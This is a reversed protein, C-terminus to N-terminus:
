EKTIFGKRRYWPEGNLFSTGIFESKDDDYRDSGNFTMTSTGQVPNELVSSGTWEVSNEGTSKGVGVSNLKNNFMGHSVFRTRDASLLYVVQMHNSGGDPKPINGEFYFYKGDVFKLTGRHEPVNSPNGGDLQSFTINATFGKGKIHFVGFEEPINSRDDNGKAIQLIQEKTLKDADEIDYKEYFGQIASESEVKAKSILPAENSSSDNASIELVILATKEIECPVGSNIQKKGGRLESVYNSNTLEGGEGSKGFCLEKIQETELCLVFYGEYIGEHLVGEPQMLFSAFIKGGNNELLEPPIYRAVGSM